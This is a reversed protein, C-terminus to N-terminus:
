LLPILRRGYFVFAIITCIGVVLTGIVYSSNWPYSSGGWSLGLLFLLSGATFLFLGGFDMERLEQM